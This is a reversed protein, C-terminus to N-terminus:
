CMIPTYINENFPSHSINVIKMRHLKIVPQLENTLQQGAIRNLRGAQNQYTLKPKITQKQMRPLIFWNNNNHLVIYRLVRSLCTLYCGSTPWKLGYHASSATKQADFANFHIYAHLRCTFYFIYGLYGLDIGTTKSLFQKIENKTSM